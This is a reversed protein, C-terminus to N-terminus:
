KPGEPVDPDGEIRPPQEPIVEPGPPVTPAPPSLQYVPPRAQVARVSIARGKLACRDLVQIARSMAAASALELFAFGRPRGTEPDKAMTIEGIEFGRAGLLARLDAEVTDASLNGIFLQNEM